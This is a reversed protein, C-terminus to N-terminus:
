TYNELVCDLRAAVRQLDQLAQVRAEQERPRRLTARRAALCRLDRLSEQTDELFQDELHYRRRQRQLILLAFLFQNLRHDDEAYDFARRRLTAFIAEM